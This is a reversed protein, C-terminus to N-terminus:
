MRNQVDLSAIDVDTGLQFTVNMTMQGSNTSGSQIYDMGPVGNVQNEVPTTVSQEVAEANAGIYNASVQVIPPTIDPYQSLPLNFISIAGLIVIIISIVIATNPRNIFTNAIM